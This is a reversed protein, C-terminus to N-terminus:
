KKKWVKPGNPTDELEYGLDNIEKRLRDSQVFQKNVRYKEREVKLKDVEPPINKEELPKLKAMLKLLDDKIGFIELMVDVRDSPYPISDWLHALAGATNLDDNLNNIFGEFIQESFKWPPNKYKKYAGALYYLNRKASLLAAKTFNMKTGYNTQLALYRFALGASVINERDKYKGKSKFLEAELDEIKFVNKERKAMKKDGVLLHENHLWYKVFPKYLPQSQAIENTHHPFILDVGGTHIDTTWGGFAERNIVSCEIHWGPRGDGLEKDPWFINGDSPDRGKWLAFDSLNEKEYEDVKVRAGTKKGELFHEGVLSGYDGFKEQYKKISFYVGDETKYAYGLKMLEKIFAKIEEIKDSVRILTIDPEDTPINIKKLDEKFSRIYRETYERLNEPTAQPGFEDVTRKITKDDVDTINMVWKVKHGNFKLVRRVTDAVIYSRLNGIHAHDYVTPGCTYLRIVGDKPPEFLDKERTLTNYLRLEM